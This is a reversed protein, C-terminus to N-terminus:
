IGVQGPLELWVFKPDRHRFHPSFDDEKLAAFSSSLPEAPNQHQYVALL